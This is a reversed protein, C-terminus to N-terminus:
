EEPIFEAEISDIIDLVTTLGGIDRFVEGSKGAPHGYGAIRLNAKSREEGADIRAEWLISPQGSADASFNPDDM